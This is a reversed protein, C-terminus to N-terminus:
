RASGRYLPTAISKCPAAPSSAAVAEPHNSVLRDDPATTTERGARRRRATEARRAIVREARRLEAAARRLGEVHDAHNKEYKGAYGRWWAWWVSWRSSVRDPEAPDLKPCALSFLRDQIRQNAHRQEDSGEGVSLGVSIAKADAYARTVRKVPEYIAALEHASRLARSWSGVVESHAELVAAAPDRRQRELAALPRCEKCYLPPRGPRQEPIIAKGCRRCPYPSATWAARRRAEWHLRQHEPSCFHFRPMKALVARRSPLLKVKDTGCQSCTITYRKLRPRQRQPM